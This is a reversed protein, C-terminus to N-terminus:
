ENLMKKIEEVRNDVENKQEERSMLRQKKAELVKMQRILYDRRRSKIDRDLLAMSDTLFDPVQLKYEEYGERLRKAASYLAVMDDMDMAELNLRKLADIIDITVGAM